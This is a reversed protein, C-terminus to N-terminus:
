YYLKIYTITISIIIEFILNNDSSKNNSKKPKKIM